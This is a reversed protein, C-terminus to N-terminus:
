YLSVLYADQCQPLATIQIRVLFQFALVHRQLVSPCGALCKQCGGHRALTTSLWRCDEIGAIATYTGLSCILGFLIESNFMDWVLAEGFVDVLRRILTALYLQLLSASHEEVHWM